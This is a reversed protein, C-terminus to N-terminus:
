KPPAASAAPKPKGLIETPPSRLPLAVRRICLRIRITWVYSAQGVNIESVPM